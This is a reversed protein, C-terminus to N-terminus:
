IATLTSCQCSEGHHAVSCNQVWCWATSPTKLSGLRGTLPVQCFSSCRLFATCVPFHSSNPLDCQKLYVEYPHPPQSATCKRANAYAGVTRGGQSAAQSVSCDFDWKRLVMEDSSHSLGKSWHAAARAQNALEMNATSPQSTARLQALRGVLKKSVPRERGM